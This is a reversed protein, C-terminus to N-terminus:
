GVVFCFDHEVNPSANAGRFSNTQTRKVPTTVGGDTPQVDRGAADKLSAMLSDFMEEKSLKRRGIRVVIRAEPTLLPAVDERGSPTTTLTASEASPRSSAPEAQRGTSRISVKPQNGGAFDPLL